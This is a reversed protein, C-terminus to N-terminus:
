LPDADASEWANIAWHHAIWGDVVIGDRVTRTVMVALGVLRDCNRPTAGLVGAHGQSTLEIPVGGLLEPRLEARDQVVSGSEQGHVEGTEEAAIFDHEVDKIPRRISCARLLTPECQGAAVSLESEGSSSM